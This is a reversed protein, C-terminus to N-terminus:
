TGKPFLFFWATSEKSPRQMCFYPVGAQDAADQLQNTMVGFRSAAKVGNVLARKGKSLQDFLEQATLGESQALKELLALIDGHLYLTKGLIAVCPFAIANTGFVKRMIVVPVYAATGNLAALLAHGFNDPSTGRYEAAALLDATHVYQEPYCNVLSESYKPSDSRTREGEEFTQFHRKITPAIVHLAKAAQSVKLYSPLDSYM